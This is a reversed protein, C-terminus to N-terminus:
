HDSNRGMLSGESSNRSLRWFHLLISRPHLSSSTVRRMRIPCSSSAAAKKSIDPLCQKLWTILILSALSMVFINYTVTSISKQRTRRGTIYTSHTVTSITNQPTRRVHHIYKTYGNLHQETTDKEGHRIYQTYGNLHHEITDKERCLGLCGWTLFM